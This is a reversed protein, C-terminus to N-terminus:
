RQSLEAKNKVDAATSTGLDSTSSQKLGFISTSVGSQKNDKVSAVPLASTTSGTPTGSPVHSFTFGTNNEASAGATDSRGLDNPSLLGSSLVTTSVPAIPRESVPSDVVNEKLLNPGVKQEVKQEKRNSSDFKQKTRGVEIKSPSNKSPIPEELDDDLESFDELVAMKFGPKRSKAASVSDELITPKDPSAVKSPGDDTLKQKGKKLGNLEQDLPENAGDSDHFKLSGSPGGMSSPGNDQLVPQKSMNPSSNNAISQKGSQKEKPSPAIINLQEFIKEAMKNSQPPIPPIMNGSKVDGDKHSELPRVSQSTGLLLRKSSPSEQISLNDETFDSGSTRSTLLNGQCNARADRFSSMMNSKQRIRRIPGISGHENELDGARRKLVQRGGAHLSQPRQSLSSMNMDGSSSPGKFYPSRSMRCIASRGRLGPTVYGNVPLGPNEIGFEFREQVVPQGPKRDYAINSAEGKNEFFLRSRLSSSQPERSYRSSMYQKALEAPSNAGPSQVNSPQIRVKVTPSYAAAMGRLTSGGPENTRTSGEKKEEDSVMATPLDSEITRARLLDTLRDFEIRCLFSSMM